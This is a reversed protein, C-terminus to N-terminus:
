RAAYVSTTSFARSAAHGLSQDFVGETAGVAEGIDIQGILEHLLGPRFVEGNALEDEGEHFAPRKPSLSAKFRWSRM